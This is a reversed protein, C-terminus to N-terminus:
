TVACKAFKFKIIKMFFNHGIMLHLLVLVRRESNVQCTSSLSDKFKQEHVVQNKFKSSKTLIM